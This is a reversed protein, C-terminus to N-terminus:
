FEIKKNENENIVISSTTLLMGAVSCAIKFENIVTEVPDLITTSNIDEFKSIYIM